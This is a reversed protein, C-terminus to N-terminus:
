SLFLIGPHLVLLCRLHMREKLKRLRGTRLGWLCYYCMGMKSILNSHNGGYRAEGDCRDKERRVTIVVEESIDKKGERIVRARNM